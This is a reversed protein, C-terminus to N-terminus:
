GKQAKLERLKALVLHKFSTISEELQAVREHLNDLDELYDKSTKRPAEPPFLEPAVTKALTLSVRTSVRPGPVILVRTGLELEKAKLVKRVEPERKDLMRALESLRIIDSSM